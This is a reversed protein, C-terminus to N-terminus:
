GLYGQAVVVVVVVPRRCRGRGAVPQAGRRHGFRVAGVNARFAALAVAGAAVEGAVALRVPGHQVFLRPFTRVTVFHVHGHRSEAHVDARMGLAAPAGEAALTEASGPQEVAVDARVGSLLGKRALNAVLRKGVFGVQPRVDLGVRVRLGEHAAPAALRERELAVQVLVFFRRTHSHLSM